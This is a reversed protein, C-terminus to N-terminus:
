VDYLFFACDAQIEAGSVRMDKLFFYRVADAPLFPPLFM